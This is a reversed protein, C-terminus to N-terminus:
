ACSVFQEDIVSIAHSVSPKSVSQSSTPNALNSSARSLPVHVTNAGVLSANSASPSSTIEDRSFLVSANTLMKVYWATTSSTKNDVSKFQVPGTAIAFPLFERVTHTPSSMKWFPIPFGRVSMGCIKATSIVDHLPTTCTTLSTINGNTTSTMGDSIGTADGGTVSGGTSTGTSVGDDDNGLSRGLRDGDTLPSSAQAVIELIAQSVSAVEVKHSSIWCYPKSAANLSPRHVTKAGVFSANEAIALTM